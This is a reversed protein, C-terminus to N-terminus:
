YQRCLRARIDHSNKESYQSGYNFFMFWANDASYPSYESSSWYCPRTSMKTSTSLNSLNTRAESILNLEDKSPLFWLSSRTERFEKIKNWIVYWGSTNPLLGRQILNNTNDLGSGVATATINTTTRYGGWEYGYKNTTNIVSDSDSETEDVYDSGAFYYSLDHNKDVFIANGVGQYFSVGNSDTIKCVKGYIGYCEIGDITLTIGAADVFEMEASSIVSSLEFENKIEDTVYYM